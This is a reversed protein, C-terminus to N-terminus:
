NSNPSFTRVTGSRLFHGYKSNNKEANERMRISYLSISRIEGHEARIRSFAFWFSELYQCKIRLTSNPSYERIANLKPQIRHYCETSNLNFERMANTQCSNESLVLYRKSHIKVDKLLGM